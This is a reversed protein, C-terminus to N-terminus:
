LGGWGADLLWTYFLVRAVRVPFMLAFRSLPMGLAGCAWCAASWPLPTIAAGALGVMGYREVLRVGVALRPRIREWAGLRRGLAFALASGGLSGALAWAAVEWFPMGGVLAIGTFIEQPVPIPITEPLSFGLMVGPGGLRGVFAAAAAEAPARLWTSVAWLLGLLGALGVIVKLALPGARLDPERPASPTSM